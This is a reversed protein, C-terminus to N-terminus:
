RRTRLSGQLLNMPGFSPQGLLGADLTMTGDLRYGVAGGTAARTVVDGLGPLDAFSISIDLPVVTDQGAVLPLGWPFDVDAAHRGELALTGALTALTVGFPNPNSIDAWLRVSAAGLPNQLSPGLLRIEAERGSAVSFRPPQIAGALSGLSACGAVVALAILLPASRRTM